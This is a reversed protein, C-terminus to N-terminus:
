AIFPKFKGEACSQVVNITNEPDYFQQPPPNVMPMQQTHHNGELPHSQLEDSTGMDKIMDDHLTTKEEEESQTNNVQAYGDNKDNLQIGDHSNDLEITQNGESEIIENNEKTNEIQKEEELSDSNNDLEESGESEAGEPKPDTHPDSNQSM